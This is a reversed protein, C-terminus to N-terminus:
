LHSFIWCHIIKLCVCLEVTQNLQLGILMVPGCFLIKYYEGLVKLPKYFHGLLEPSILYLM